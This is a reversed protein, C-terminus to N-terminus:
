PAHHEHEDHDLWALFTRFDHAYTTAGCTECTELGETKWHVLAVRVTSGLLERVQDHPYANFHSCAPEPLDLETM